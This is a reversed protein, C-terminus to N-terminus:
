STPPPLESIAPPGAVPLALRFVAGRGPTGIYSLEGDHEIAIRQAIALGLGTGHPKTTAYPEFLRAAIDPSIGPGNDAVTIVVRARGTRNTEVTVTVRPSPTEKVADLANQLLNTAVQVIQDRDAMVLPPTGRVSIDIATTPANAKQLTIVQKVLDVLDVEAPRPPPLRAFRTFETVINAIRHVEDLVTRTAEDFYEDFAPDDRARLRRLTEVAARIPALPNKVEHAVRRAVERWAAVRSTAALRRRTTELDEIMRDFAASLDAMEGSGRVSLPQAEGSAVKRAQAALEEIPRSLGRALLVALLLAGTSALVVAIAVTRDIQRLHEFLEARSKAVTISIPKGGGDDLVCSARAMDAHNGSILKEAAAGSAASVNITKGLRDLLPDMKRMGIVTTTVKRGKRRCRSVIGDVAPSGQLYHEPKEKALAIVEATPIGALASPAVGLVDGKDTVLLLADLDFATRQNPVLQAFALRRDELGEREMAVLTRDALEGDGCVGGILKRDNDAQRKVEDRIRECASSVEADFHQTEESRRGERLAWGLGVTSLAGVFGLAIGLRPAIRM